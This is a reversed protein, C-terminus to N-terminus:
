KNNALDGVLSFLPWYAAVVILGIVIGAIILTM